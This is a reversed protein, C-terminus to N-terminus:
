GFLMRQWLSEGVIAIPAVADRLEVAKMIKNGYTSHRWQENGVSGVVLLGPRIAGGGTLAVKTLRFSDM